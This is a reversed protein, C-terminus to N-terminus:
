EIGLVIATSCNYVVDAPGGSCWNINNSNAAMYAPTDRENRVCQCRGCASKGCCDNYSIIYNKGDAPNRCTGIWTIPAMKTGPPCSTKTGGCCSCLYGDIACYRWYECSNPDGPDESPSREKPLNNPIDKTDAAQASNRWVPLLPYASAGVLTTGFGAIFSRRSTLRAKKRSTNEAWKDLWKTIM